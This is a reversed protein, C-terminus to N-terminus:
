KIMKEKYMAETELSKLNFDDIFNFDKVRQTSTDDKDFNLKKMSCMSKHELEVMFHCSKGYIIKYSFM